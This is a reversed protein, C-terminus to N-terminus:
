LQLSAAHHAANVGGGRGRAGWRCEASLCKGKKTSSYCIAASTTPLLGAPNFNFHGIKLVSTPTSYTALDSLPGLLPGYCCFFIVFIPEYPGLIHWHLGAPNLANTLSETTQFYIDAAALFFDTSDLLM